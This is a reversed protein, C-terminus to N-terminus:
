PKRRPATRFRITTTSDISALISRRRRAEDAVMRAAHNWARRSTEPGDSWALAERLLALCDECDIIRFARGTSKAQGRPATLTTGTCWTERDCAIHIPDKPNTSALKIPAALTATVGM